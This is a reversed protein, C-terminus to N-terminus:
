ARGATPLHKAEFEEIFGSLEENIQEVRELDKETPEAGEEMITMISGFLHQAGAFFAQRMEDLQVQPADKPVAMARLAVWGAEILRGQDALKRTLAQTAADLEPHRARRYKRM